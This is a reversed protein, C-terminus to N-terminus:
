IRILLMYLATGVGISLLTNKKWLHLAVVAAAVIGIAGIRGAVAYWIGAVLAFAIVFVTASFLWVGANNAREGVMETHPAPVVGKASAAPGAPATTASVAGSFNTHQKSTKGFAM